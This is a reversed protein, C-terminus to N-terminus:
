KESDAIAKRNKLLLSVTGAGPPTVKIKTGPSFRLAAAYWYTHMFRPNYRYLWLLPEISGDPCQAVVMLSSGEPVNAPRIGTLTLATRLTLAGDVSIEPAIPAASHQASFEPPKPLIAPDGEPAGGEVWDAILGLQEQTLGDDDRFDGFGKVAGWPPMRRELVEEKIAAAWPRAEQYTLLSFASGGPRHCTACRTYILRSIERSFTLPTTIVDHATSCLALWGFLAARALCRIALGAVQAHPLTQGVQKVIISPNTM